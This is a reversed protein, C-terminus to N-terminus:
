NRRARDNMYMTQLVDTQNEDSQDGDTHGADDSSAENGEGGRYDTPVSEEPNYNKNSKSGHGYDPNHKPQRSGSRSNRGSKQEVVNDEPYDRHPTRQSTNRNTRKPTSPTLKNNHNILRENNDLSRNMASKINSLQHTNSKQSSELASIRKHLDSIQNNLENIKQTSYLAYIILAASNIPPLYTGALQGFQDM